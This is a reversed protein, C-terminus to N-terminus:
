MGCWVIGSWLMGSWAMCFMVYMCADYTSACMCACMDCLLVYPVLGDHMCPYVSVCLYRGAQM